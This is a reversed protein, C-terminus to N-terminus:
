YIVELVRIVPEVQSLNKILGSDLVCGSLCLDLDDDIAPRECNCNKTTIHEINEAASGLSEDAKGSHDHCQVDNTTEDLTLQGTIEKM